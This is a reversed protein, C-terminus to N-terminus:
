GKGQLFTGLEKDMIKIHNKFWGGLTDIVEVVLGSTIEGADFRAKMQRVETTFYEHAQKQAAYGPYNHQKMIAEEDGFHFITYDTMFNIIEGVEDKGRGDWIADEIQGFRQFLEKHQDDIKDVHVSLDPTWTMLVAM